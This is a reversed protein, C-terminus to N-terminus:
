HIQNVYQQMTEFIINRKVKNTPPSQINMVSTQLSQNIILLSMNWVRQLPIGVLRIIKNVIHSYLAHANRVASNRYGKKRKQMFRRHM